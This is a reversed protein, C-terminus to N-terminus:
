KAPEVSVVSGFGNVKLVWKSGPRIGSFLAADTTGYEKDGKSTKYFVTYKESKEGYRQNSMLQPAPWQPNTDTGDLTVDKIKSWEEISYKCYDKYVKYQCDQVVEAYGNGKDVKYPTGCVKEGGATPEDQMGFYKNQCVGLSAKSPIEDKWAEKQVPGFQEITISRQWAVNQVTGTLADTKFLNIALFVLLACAALGIVGFIVFKSKNAPAPQATGVSSQSASPAALPGGCQGCFDASPPNPSGCQPCKVDERTGPKYAGMVKGSARNKANKLDGGCQSCVSSGAPNRTDCFPCYLDSGSKAKLVESEDQILPQDVEEFPVNEPQPSGCSGCFKNPGPNNSGCNPCKWILKVFGLTEKAMYGAM